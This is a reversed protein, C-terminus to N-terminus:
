VEANKQEAMGLLKELYYYKIFEEREAMERIEDPRAWRVMAVEEEQLCLSEIDLDQRVLWIDDFGFSFKDTFVLEASAMDLELELEERAERVAAAESSDGAHAAGAVACDWMGPFLKKWPQRKQILFEGSSNMIWVHVVLIFDGERVTKGRVHTRGTRERDENYIDLIEM